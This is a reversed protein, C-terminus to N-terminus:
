LSLGATRVLENWKRADKVLFDTFEARTMIAVDLGLSAMRAQVDPLALAANIEKHLVDVIRAPVGRPAVISYFGVDEYGPVSEAIAPVEPLARNRKASSVGLGRL